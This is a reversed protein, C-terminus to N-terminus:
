RTVPTNPASVDIIKAKTTLLAQLIEVKRPGEQASGWVITRGGLTFTMLTASSVKVASVEAALESPLEDLLTLAGLLAERSTGRSGVATVVPVGAPAKKVVGFSVGTADVVELQGEPNRVVIAPTREVVDVVLTGPWSRRVSVEAVRVQTRVRDAVAATDVRALPMGVPVQVLATVADAQAGEVGIVEVDRVGLLPSWGLVWVLAVVVGIGILVSLVRRWPRRRRALARERFRTASSAVGRPDGNSRTNTGVSM